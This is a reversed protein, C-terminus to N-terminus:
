HTTKLAVRIQQALVQLNQRTVEVTKGQVTGELPVLLVGGEAMDQRGLVVKISTAGKVEFSDKSLLGKASFRFPVGNRAATCAMGILPAPTAWEVLYQAQLLDAPIGAQKGHAACERADVQQRLATLQDAAANVAPESSSQFRNAKELASVSQDTQQQPPAAVLTRVNAVFGAQAQREQALEDISEKFLAVAGGPIQRAQVCAAYFKPLERQSQPSLTLLDQPMKEPEACTISRPESAFASGARRTTYAWTLVGDRQNVQAAGSQTVAAQATAQRSELALLHDRQQLAGRLLQFQRLADVREADKLSQPGLAAAQCAEYRRLAQDLFEPKWDRARVGYIVKDLGGPGTGSIDGLLELRMPCALQPMQAFAPLTSAVVGVAVVARLLM